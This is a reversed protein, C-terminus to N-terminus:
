RSALIRLSRSQSRHKQIYLWFVVLMTTIYDIMWTLLNQCLLSSIQCIGVTPSAPRCPLLVTTSMRAVTLGYSRVSGLYEDSTILEQAQTRNM